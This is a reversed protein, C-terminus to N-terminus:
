PWRSQGARLLQRAGAVVDVDVLLEGLGAAQQAVANGVELHFLMDDVAADGLGLGRTGGERVAEIDTVCNSIMGAGGSCSFLPRVQGFQGSFIRVEDLWASPAFRSNATSVSFNEPPSPLTAFSCQTLTSSLNLGSGPVSNTSSASSMRSAMPKTCGTCSPSSFVSPTSRSGRPLTRALVLSYRVESGFTNEAPSMRRPWDSTTQAM